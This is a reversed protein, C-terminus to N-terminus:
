PRSGLMGFSDGELPVVEGIHERLVAAFAAVDGARLHAALQRHEHMIAECRTLLREGNAFLVFRHRDALRGYLEFLVGNGGAEVFGRHFQLTLEIFERVDGADFAARQREISEDLEDALQARLAAPARDVATTELVYRADALEAIQRESLGQVLAGRKPYTVIWGEEQLRTLAARVPTRSMGLQQAVTAEGLMTGPQHTGDLIADRIARYARESASASEVVVVEEGLLM